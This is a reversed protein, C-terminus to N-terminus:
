TVVRRLTPDMSRISSSIIANTIDTAIGIGNGIGIGISLNWHRAKCITMKVNGNLQIWKFLNHM